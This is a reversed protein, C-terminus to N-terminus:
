ALSPAESSQTSGTAVIKSAEELDLITWGKPLRGKQKIPSTIIVQGPASSLAAMVERLTSPDFAREEPTFVKLGEVNESVACAM